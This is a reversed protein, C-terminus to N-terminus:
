NVRQRPLIACMKTTFIDISQVIRATASPLTFRIKNLLLGIGCQMTVNMDGRRQFNAKPM